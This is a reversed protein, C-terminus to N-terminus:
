FANPTDLMADIGPIANEGRFNVVNDFVFKCDALLLKNCGRVVTFTDGIAIAFGIPIWLTFDGTALFTSVDAWPLGSNAGTDFKLRGGNHYGDARSTSLTATFARHESAVATVTGTDTFTTLDKKCRADGLDARCNPTYIEILAQQALQQAQSVLTVVFQGDTISVPGFRSRTKKLTGMTLDEYNVEFVRLDAFDYVGADIDAATIGASDLMGQVDLNDIGLDLETAIASRTFGTAAAYTVDDLVIDSVNNTFGMVVGDSRTVKWCIARTTVEGQLHALYAPSVSKM